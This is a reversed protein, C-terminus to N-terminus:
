AAAGVTRRRVVIIDAPGDVDLSVLASSAISSFEAEPKDILADVLERATFEEITKRSLGTTPVNQNPM